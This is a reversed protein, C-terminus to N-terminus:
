TLGPSVTLALHWKSLSPVLPQRSPNRFALSPVTLSQSPLLAFSGLSKQRRWNLLDFNVRFKSRTATGLMSRSRYVTCEPFGTCGGDGGLHAANLRLLKGGAWIRETRM